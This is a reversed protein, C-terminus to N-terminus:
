RIQNFEINQGLWAVGGDLGDIADQVVLRFGESSGAYENRLLTLIVDPAQHPLHRRRNEFSRRLALQNQLTFKVQTGFLDLSPRGLVDPLHDNYVAYATAQSRINADTSSLLGELDDATGRMALVTAAKLRKERTGLAERLAQIVTDPLPVRGLVQAADKESEGLSTIFDIYAQPDHRVFWSRSDDMFTGSQISGLTVGAKLGDAVPSGEVSPFAIDRIVPPGGLAQITRLAEVRLDPHNTKDFVSRAIPLAEVQHRLRAARLFYVIAGSIRQGAIAKPLDTKPSVSMLPDTVASNMSAAVVPADFWGGRVLAAITWPDNKADSAIAAKNSPSQTILAEIAFVRPIVLPLDVLSFVSEPIKSPCVFEATRLYAALLEAKQYLEDSPYDPDADKQARFEQILSNIESVLRDDFGPPAHELVGGLWDLRQSIRSTTRSLSEFYTAAPLTCGSRYLAGYWADHWYGNDDAPKATAVLEDSIVKTCQAPFGQLVAQVFQPDDYTGISDNSNLIGIAAAPDLSALRGLLLSSSRPTEYFILDKLKAEEPPGAVTALAGYAEGLGPLDDSDVYPDAALYGLFKKLDGNSWISVASKWEPSLHEFLLPEIEINMRSVIPRGVGPRLEPPLATTNIDTMLIRHPFGLWNFNPDGAYITLLDTNDGAFVSTEHGVYRSHDLYVYYCFLLIAIAGSVGAFARRLRRRLFTRSFRPTLSEVREISQNRLIFLRPDKTSTGAYVPEQLTPDLNAGVLNESVRMQIFRFMDQFYIVGLENGVVSGSLVECLAKSFFTNRVSKFEYSNQGTRSASLLLRFESNSLSRFFSDANEAFGASKCCDLIVLIGSARTQGLAAQFSTMGLATAPVATPLTERTLLYFQDDIREGHGSFYFIITDTETAALAITALEALIKERTADADCLATVQAQPVACGSPDLLVKRLDTVNQAAYDLRLDPVDYGSIGVMLLWTKQATPM